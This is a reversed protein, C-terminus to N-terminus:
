YVIVDGGMNDWRVGDKLENVLLKIDNLEGIYDETPADLDGLMYDVESSIFGFVVEYIDSLSDVIIGTTTDGFMDRGSYEEYLEGVGLEDVIFKAVQANM